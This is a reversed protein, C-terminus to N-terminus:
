WVEPNECIRQHHEHGPPMFIPLVFAQPRDHRRAPPSLVAYQLTVLTRMGSAVPYDLYGGNALVADFEFNGM